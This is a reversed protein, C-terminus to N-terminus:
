SEYYLNGDDGRYPWREGAAHALETLKDGIEGHGRDWFGSGHRNRTLWLDHGFREPSSGELDFYAYILEPGCAQIFKLVDEIIRGRSAFIFSMEDEGQVLWSTDDRNEETWDSETWLMAEIYGRLVIRAFPEPLVRLDGEENALYLADPAQWCAPNNTLFVDIRTPADENGFLLASGPRFSPAPKLHVDLLWQIDTPTDLWKLNM